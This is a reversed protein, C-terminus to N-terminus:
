SNKEVKYEEETCLSFFHVNNHNFSKEWTYTLCFREIWIIEDAPTIIIDRLHVNMKGSLSVECSIINDIELTHSLFIRVSTFIYNVM